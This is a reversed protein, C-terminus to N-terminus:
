RLTDAMYLANAEASGAGEGQWQGSLGQSLIQNAVKIIPDNLPIPNRGGEWNRAVSESNGFLSPSSTKASSTVQQTTTTSPTTVATTTTTTPAARQESAGYLQYHTQAFQEPTMGYSNQAYAAAVDPNAAFYANAM